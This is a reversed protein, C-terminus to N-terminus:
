TAYKWGASRETQRTGAQPGAM